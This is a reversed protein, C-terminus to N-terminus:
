SLSAWYLTKLSYKQSSGLNSVSSIILFHRAPAYGPINDLKPMTYLGKFVLSEIM